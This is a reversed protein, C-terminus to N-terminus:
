RELEQMEIVAECLIVATAGKAREKKEEELGDATRAHRGGLDRLEGDKMKEGGSRGM